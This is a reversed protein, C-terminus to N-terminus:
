GPAPPAGAEWGALAEDVIQTIFDPTVDRGMVFSRWVMAGMIQATLIEADLGPRLEGRAVGAGISARLNDAISGV